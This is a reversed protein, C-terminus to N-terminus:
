KPPDTTPDVDAGIGIAYLAIAQDPREARTDRASMRREFRLGLKEAVRISAANPPDIVAVLRRLGMEGTAHGVVARAAETAYGRGWYAKWIWWGLEFEGSDLPQLGCLGIVEKGERREVAGFAIGHQDVYRAQRRLFEDVRERTWPVGNTVYRLMDRDFAMRELAPRDDETWPRVILRETTLRTM